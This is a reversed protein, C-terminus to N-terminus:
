RHRRRLVMVSADAFSLVGRQPPGSNAREEAQCSANAIPPLGAMSAAASRVTRTCIKIGSASGGISRARGSVPTSALLSDVWGESETPTGATDVTPYHCVLELINRLATAGEAREAENGIPSQVTLSM